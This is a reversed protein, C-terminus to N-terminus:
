NRQCAVFPLVEDRYGTESGRERLRISKAYFEKKCKQHGPFRFTISSIYVVKQLDTLM